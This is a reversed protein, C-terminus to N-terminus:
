SNYATVLEGFSFGGTIDTNGFQVSSGAGSTRFQPFLRVRVTPSLLGVKMQFRLEEANDLVACYFSIVKAPANAALRNPSNPYAPRLRLQGGYFSSPSGPAGLVFQREVSSFVAADLSTYDYLLAQVTPRKFEQLTFQLFRSQGKYITDVVTGEGLLNDTINDGERAIIEEVGDEAAISGLTSFGTSTNGTLPDRNPRYFVEYPTSSVFGFDLLSACAM